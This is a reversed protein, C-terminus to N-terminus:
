KLTAIPIVLHICQPEPLNNRDYQITSKNQSHISYNAGKNYSSIPKCVAKDANPTKKTPVVYINKACQNNITPHMM